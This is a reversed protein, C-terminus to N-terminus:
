RLPRTRSDGAFPSRFMVGSRAATRSGDFISLLHQLVSTPVDHWRDLPRVHSLMNKKEVFLFIVAELLTHLFSEVLLQIFQQFQLPLSRIFLQGSGERRHFGIHLTLGVSDFLETVFCSPTPIVAVISSDNAVVLSSLLGLKLALLFAFHSVLSFSHFVFTTCMPFVGRLM